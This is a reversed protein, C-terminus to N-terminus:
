APCVTRVERRPRTWKSTPLEDVKTDTMRLLDDLARRSKVSDAQSALYAIMELQGMIETM